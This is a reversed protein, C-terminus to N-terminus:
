RPWHHGLYPRPNDEAWRRLRAALASAQAGGAPLDRQRVFVVVLEPANAVDAVNETVVVAGHARAFSVVAEPATGRYVIGPHDLTDIGEIILRELLATSSIGELEARRQLRERARVSLRFSTSSPM